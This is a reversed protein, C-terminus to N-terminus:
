KSTYLVSRVKGGAVVPIYASGDCGLAKFRYDLFAELDKESTWAQKMADSFVRGSIQGAKRMNAIEADSKFVRIGNIIPKLPKVTSSELIKTMSDATPPSSSFLRSFSSTATTKTIDTYVESAGDVIPRILDQM